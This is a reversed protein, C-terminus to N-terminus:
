EGPSVKAGCHGCFRDDREVAKGCQTCYRKDSERERGGGSSRSSGKSGGGGEEGGMSMRMDGMEMKMPRMPKMPEMPKMPKMPEMPKMKMPKTGGGSKSKKLRLEEANDLNPERDVRSIGDGRVRLFETGEKTELQIFVDRKVKFVKPAKAWEGTTFGTSQSQQQGSGSSSLSVFTNDDENELLLRQGNELKCEYSM